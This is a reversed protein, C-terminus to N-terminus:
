ATSRSATSRRSSPRTCCGTSRPPSRDAQASPTTSTATYKSACPRTPTTRRDAAIFARAGEVIHDGHQNFLEFFNGERPLLKGFLM